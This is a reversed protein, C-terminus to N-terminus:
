ANLRDRSERAQPASLGRYMAEMKDLMHGLTYKETVLSLGQFALGKALESDNILRKIAEALAVPDERPISLANQGGIAVESVGGVNTAVVPVSAAHAQLIAQPVGEPSRAALVFVDLDALIQPIDRRFGTLIIRARSEANLMPEIKERLRGEGVLIFWADVGERLLRLAASVFTDGGKDGRLVAIQGILPVGAPIGFEHRIAGTRPQNFQSLEVGTPVVSIKGAQVGIDVLGQKISQSTTMVADCLRGYPLTRLFGAKAPNAIHRSRIVPIGLTRAVPAVNWADKSNHANVLDVHNERMIRWIMGLSRPHLNSRMPVPYVCLKRRLAEKLIPTDPKAVLVSTIERERLAEMELLIRLEQGGFSPSSESHLVTLPSRADM